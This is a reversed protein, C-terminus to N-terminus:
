RMGRGQGALNLAELGQTGQAKRQGQRCSRCQAQRCLGSPPLFSSVSSPTDGNLSAEQRHLPQLLAGPDPKEVCVHSPSPLEARRM